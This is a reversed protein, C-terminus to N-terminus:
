YNLGAMFKDYTIEKINSSTLLAYKEYIQYETLNLSNLDWFKELFILFFLILILLNINIIVNILM